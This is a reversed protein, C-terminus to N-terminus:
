HARKGFVFWLGQLPHLGWQRAKGTATCQAMMGQPMGPLRMAITCQPTNSILSADNVAAAAAAAAATIAFATVISLWHAHLTHQQAQVYRRYTSFSSGFLQQWSCWAFICVHCLPGSCPGWVGWVAGVARGGGGGDEGCRGKDGGMGGLSVGALASGGIAPKGGGCYLAPGASAGGGGPAPAVDHWGM